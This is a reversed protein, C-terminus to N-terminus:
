FSDGRSYRSSTMRDHHSPLRSATNSRFDDSGYSPASIKKSVSYNKMVSEVAKSVIDHQVHVPKDHFSSGVAAPQPVSKRLHDDVLSKIATSKTEHSRFRKDILADLARESVGTAAKAADSAAAATVIRQDILNTIGSLSKQSHARDVSSRHFTPEKHMRSDTEPRSHYPLASRGTQVGSYSDGAHNVYSDTATNPNYPMAATAPIYQGDRGILGISPNPQSTNMASLQQNYKQQMHALHQQAMIDPKFDVVAVNQTTNNPGMASNMQPNM